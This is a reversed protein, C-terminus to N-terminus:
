ENCWEWENVMNRLENHDAQLTKKFLMSNNLESPNEFQSSLGRNHELHLVNGSLRKIKAGLKMFRWFLEPDEKGWGIFGEHWGGFPFFSDKRYGIVAGCSLNDPSLPCPPIYYDSPKFEIKRTLRIVDSRERTLSLFYEFPYILDFRDKNLLDVMICYKNIDQLLVDAAHCIIVPTNAEKVGINQVKAMSFLGHNENFIYKIPYYSTYINQQEYIPQKDDEIILINTKYYSLLYEILLHLDIIRDESDVRLPIVFTAERLDDM